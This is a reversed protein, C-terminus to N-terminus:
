HGERRKVWIADLVNGKSNRLLRRMALFADEPQRDRVAEYVAQHQLIADDGMVTRWGLSFSIQLASEILAGVSRLMPNHAAELLTMHFALDAAIQAESGRPESRIGEHAAALREIEEATAREAARSAAAPEMIERMEFLANVFAEDPEDGTQWRLVDPDLMNWEAAPRIRTGVKPRSVTLGKASLLRIAERVATRSVGFEAQIRPETPLTQGPQYEGLVIRRGIAAAVM